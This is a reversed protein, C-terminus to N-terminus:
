AQSCPTFMDLVKEVSQMLMVCVVIRVQNLKEANRIIGTDLCLGTKDRLLKDAHQHHLSSSMALANLPSIEGALGDVDDGFIKGCSAIQVLMLNMRARDDEQRETVSM